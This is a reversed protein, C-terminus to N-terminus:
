RTVTFRVTRLASRNGAADRASVQARWTGRRIQARPLTLAGPGAKVIMTTTRARAWRSCRPGKMRSCRQLAVTLTAAESVTWRLRARRRAPFRKRTARVSSLVPAIRDPPPTVTPTPTPTSTPPLPDPGANVAVSGTASAKRGMADTVTVTATHGGPATWAHTVFAGGAVTGDDFTWAFTGPGDHIVSATADFSAAQGPAVRDPSVVVKPAPGAYEHAGMDRRAVGDGDGDLTRTVGEVDAPWEEPTLGAPNGRDIAPSPWLLRFDRAAADVLRADATVNGGLDQVAAGPDVAALDVASHSVEVRGGSGATAEEAGTQANSAFGRIISSRALVRALFGNAGVARLATGGATGERVLTVHRLDADVATGIYCGAGAEFGNGDVAVAVTSEVLLPHCAQSVRQRTLLRAQRVRLPNFTMLGTASESEALSVEGAGANAESAPTGAYFAVSDHGDLHVKVSEARADGYLLIGMNTNAGPADTVRVDTVEGTTRLAFGGTPVVLDLHTASVDADNTGSFLWLVTQNVLSPNNVTLVTRNGGEAWGVISLRESNGSPEYKFPGPFTGPGILISDPTSPTAAAADLAAQLTAMNTGGCTPHSVCYTAAQAANPLLLAVVIGLGLRKM